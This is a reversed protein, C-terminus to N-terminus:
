LEVEKEIGFLRLAQQLEHIYECRMSTIQTDGNEAWDSVTICNKYFGWGIHITGFTIDICTHYRNWKWGNKELIDATLPVPEIADLMLGFDVFDLVVFDYDLNVIRGARPLMKAIKDPLPCVGNNTAIVWSGLTLESAKM